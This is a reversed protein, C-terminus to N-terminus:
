RGIVVLCAGQCVPLCLVWKGTLEPLDEVGHQGDGVVGRSKLGTTFQLLTANIHLGPAQQCTRSGQGHPIRPISAIDCVGRASRTGLLQSNNVEKKKGHISRPLSLLVTPMQLQGEEEENTSRRGPRKLRSTCTPLMAYHCPAPDVVIRRPSIRLLIFLTFNSPCPAALRRALCPGIQFLFVHRHLLSYVAPLHLLSLPSASCCRM